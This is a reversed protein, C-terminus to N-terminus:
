FMWRAKLSATQNTFGERIEVDYRASLEVGNNLKTVLGLGGRALWPSPDIGKTTFAASPSGAFAATISSQENMFDYGGGLSALLTTRDSLNHTLKGELSLVLEETRNGDVILNLADAGTETYGDDHIVTYDARISPTLTTKTSLAYSRALGTGVHASWSSYDSRAIRNIGGFDIQRDGQTDHLGVDAQFSLDMADSLSHSGYAVLQYTDVTASQRAVTSKSDVDSRSYAFALGLRNQAKIEADAGLVFGYTNADYGSAGNHNEQEAWSGFPKFWLKRDSLADDGSSRGLQGEQRSQVIRNSSHLAGSITQGVGATTLPLLQSVANSVQQSTELKGLETIVTQMDSNSTGNDVLNDIVGAAGLAPSNSNDNAAQTATLAKIVKLDIHGGTGETAQSQFNFMASNDTVSTFNGSLNGATVVNALTAGVALTNVESVNVDIRGAISANGSVALQSYNGTNSGSAAIRLTGSATQTFDGGIYSQFASHANSLDILGSNTFQLSGGNLNWINIAGNMVGTSLNEITGTTGSENYGYLSYAHQDSEGSITGRNILTGNLNNIYAGIGYESGSGSLTGENYLTGNLTHIEAGFGFAAQGSITGTNHILGTENVTDLRIGSGWYDAQSSITGSNELTGNLTTAYIGAAYSYGSDNSSHAQASITGSNNLVADAAIENSISIGAASAWYNEAQASATITGSNNLTGQMASPSGEYIGAAVAYNSGTAVDSASITGNNNLTGLLERDIKIGALTDPNYGFGYGYGYGYTTGTGTASITGNNTLTQGSGLDGNVGGEGATIAYWLASRNLENNITVDNNVTLSVEKSAVCDAQNSSITQNGSSFGYDCALPTASATPIYALSAIAAM